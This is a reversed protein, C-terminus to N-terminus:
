KSDMRELTRQDIRDLVVLIRNIGEVIQRQTETIQSHIIDEKKEFREFAKVAAILNQILEGNTRSTRKVVWVVFGVSKRRM